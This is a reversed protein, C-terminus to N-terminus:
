RLITLAMIASGEASRAAVWYKGPPLVIAGGETWRQVGPSVSKAMVTRGSIDHISLTATTASTVDIAFNGHSPNPTIRLRLRSAIPSAVSLNESGGPGFAGIKGGSTSYNTFLSAPLLDYNPGLDPDYYAIDTRTGCDPINMQWMVSKYLDTCTNIGAAVLVSNRIREITVFGGYCTCYDMVCDGSGLNVSNDTFLVNRIYSHLISYVAIGFGSFSSPVVHTSDVTTFLDGLVNYLGIGGHGTFSCAGISGTVRNPSAPFDVNTAIGNTVDFHCGSLHIIYNSLLMIGTVCNLVECKNLTVPVASRIGIPADLINCNRLDCTAGPAFYLGGWAAASGDSQLTIRGGQRDEGTAVLQGYILLEARKPDNGSAFFDSNAVARITVGPQLTLKGTATVTLDGYLVYEPGPAAATLVSDTSIQGAIWNPPLDTSGTETAVATGAKALAIVVLSAGIAGRASMARNM